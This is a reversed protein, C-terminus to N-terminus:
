EAYKFTKALKVFNQGDLAVFVEADVGKPDGELM